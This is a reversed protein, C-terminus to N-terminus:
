AGIRPLAKAAFATAIPCPGTVNLVRGRSLPVLMTQTRDLCYGTRGHVRVKLTASGKGTRPAHFPTQAVTM